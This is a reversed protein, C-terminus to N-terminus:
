GISDLIEDIRGARRGFMLPRVRRMIVEANTGTVVVKYQEQRIHGDSKATSNIAVAYGGLMRAVEAVVDYDVMSVMITARAKSRKPVAKRLTFCGEGELLGALWGLEVDSLQPPEYVVKGFVKSNM